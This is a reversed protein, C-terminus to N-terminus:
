SEVLLLLVIPEPEVKSEPDDKPDITPPPPPPKCDGVVEAKKDDDDDIVMSNDGDAERMFGCSSVSVAPEVETAAAVAL